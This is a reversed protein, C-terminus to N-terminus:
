TTQKNKKKTRTQEKLILAQKCINTSQKDMTKRVQKIKRLLIQSKIQLTRSDLRVMCKPTGLNISTGFSYNLLYGRDKKRRGATTAM